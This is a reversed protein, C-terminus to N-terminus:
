FENLRQPINWRVGMSGMATDRDRLPDESDRQRVFLRLDVFLNHRLRYSTTLEGMLQNVAVGQGITVGYERPRNLTYDLFINGGWNQGPADEGTRLYFGKATVFLRPFPQYRVIGIFEYFNAGNPHALPQRYHQYNSYEPKQYHTYMYPRVLNFEGQIDLHRIGGADIYKFGFQGAQKNGWWGNMGVIERMVWEDLVLQGYFQVRKWANWKFDLGLLANDPDGLHHEVSRYFIVPNLYAPDFRGNLMSSDARNFAISEFFGVNLNPALDIALRHYALYKKPYGANGPLSVNNAIMQAFLNTYTVRWFRTNLKLFLYNNSFDSLILSRYGNGIFNRDQGFQVDINKTAAFSIYGRGTFFNNATTSTGGNAKWFGENPVAGTATIQERVYLPFQTVNDTLFTYFGLKKNIMGRIEIGRTNFYPTLESATERGAQLNLVPNIHLDHDEGQHHFFDSKKQYLYKWIPKRSDNDASDAFEWNDALLYAINARDVTSMAMDSRLLSDAFAAVSQRKYPRVGSHFDRAFTKQRIEYRDILHYYDQNLPVYTSQAQLALASLLWCWCWLLRTKM